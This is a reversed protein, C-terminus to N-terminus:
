KGPGLLRGEIMEILVVVLVKMEVVVVFFFFFNFTKREADSGVGSQYYISDSIVKTEVLMTMGRERRWLM